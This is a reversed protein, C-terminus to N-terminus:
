ISTPGVSGSPTLISLASSASTRWSFLMEAMETRANDREAMMENLESQFTDRAAELDRVTSSEVLEGSERLARVEHM